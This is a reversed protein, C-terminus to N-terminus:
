KIRTVFLWVAIIIDTSSYQRTYIVVNSSTASIEIMYSSQQANFGEGLILSSSGRPDQTEDILVFQELNAQSELTTRIQVNVFYIGTEFWGNCCPVLDTPHLTINDGIIVDYMHGLKQSEDNIDLRFKM